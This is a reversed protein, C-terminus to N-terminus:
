TQEKRNTWHECVDDASTFDACNESEGNFCVGQFDEWYGCTECCKWSKTEKEM